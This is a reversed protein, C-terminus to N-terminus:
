KTEGKLVAKIAEIDDGEGYDCSEVWEIDHMAKAVKRVHKVFDLHLKTAAVRELKDAFDDVYRYAYDYSGGSM